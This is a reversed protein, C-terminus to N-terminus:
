VEFNRIYVDIPCLPLQYFQISRHKDVCHRYDEYSVSGGFYELVEKPPAMQITQTSNLCYVKRYLNNLLSLQNWYMQDRNYMHDYLYRLACEFSCFNGYCCFRGNQYDKPIGISENKCYEYSCNWCHILDKNFAIDNRAWTFDYPKTIVDISTTEEPKTVETDPIKNKSKLFNDIDEQTIHLTVFYSQRLM